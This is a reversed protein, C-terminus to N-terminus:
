GRSHSYWQRVKEVAVDKAFSAFPHDFPDRLTGRTKYTGTRRCRERGAGTSGVCSAARGLLHPHTSRRYFGRDGLAMMQGPFGGSKTGDDVGEITSFGIM